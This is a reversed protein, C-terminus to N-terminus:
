EAVEKVPEAAEAGLVSAIVARKGDPLRGDIVEKLRFERGDGHPRCTGQVAMDHIAAVISEPLRIGLFVARRRISDVATKIDIAPFLSSGLATSCNTRFLSQQLGVAHSYFHRAVPFRGIAYPVFSAPNGKRMRALVNRAFTFTAGNSM